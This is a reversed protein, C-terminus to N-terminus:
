AGTQKQMHAKSTGVMNHTCTHVYACLLNVPVTYNQMYVYTCIYM